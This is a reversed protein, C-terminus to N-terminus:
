CNIISLINEEKNSFHSPKTEAMKRQFQNM